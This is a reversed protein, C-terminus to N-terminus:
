VKIIEGLYRTVSEELALKLLVLTVDFKLDFCLLGSTCNTHGPPKSVKMGGIVGLKDLIWTKAFSSSLGNDFFNLFIIFDKTLKSVDLNCLKWPCFHELTIKSLDIM